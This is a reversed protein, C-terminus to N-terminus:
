CIWETLIQFFLILNWNGVSVWDEPIRIKFKTKKNEVVNEGNINTQTFDELRVWGRDSGLSETLGKTKWLFVGLVILLGSIVVIPIIKRIKM